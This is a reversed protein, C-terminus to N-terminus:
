LAQCGRKVHDPRCGGWSRLSTDPPTRKKALGTRGSPIRAMLEMHEWFDKSIRFGAPGPSKEISEILLRKNNTFDQGDQTRAAGLVFVAGLDNDGFYETIFQRARLRAKLDTNGPVFILFNHRFERANTQLDPEADFPLPERRELPINVPAFTTIVQPVSNESVEFDDVTLGSVPKDNQDTVVVDVQVAEVSSRFVPTPQSQQPRVSPPEQGPLVTTAIAGLALTLAVRFLPSRSWSSRKM